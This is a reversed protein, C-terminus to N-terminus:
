VGIIHTYARLWAKAILKHGEETPHIGDTTLPYYGVLSAAKAFLGDLPVFPFRYDVSLRRVAHIKPDLDERFHLREARVDPDRHALIFPEMIIIKIEPLANLTRDILNRYNKEFDEASIPDNSDYRRWCDNVGIYITLVDPKLALCDKEWRKTLEAVRDGGIGRNLISFSTGPFKDAFTENIIKVYGDGLSLPDNRDRGCDTISDGQFLINM